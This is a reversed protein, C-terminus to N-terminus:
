LNCVSVITATKEREKMWWGMAATWKHKANTLHTYFIHIYLKKKSFFFFCLWSLARYLSSHNSRWLWRQTVLASVNALMLGFLHSHRCHNERRRRRNWDESELGSQTRLWRPNASTWLVGIGSFDGFVERARIDWKLFFRQERSCRIFYNKNM